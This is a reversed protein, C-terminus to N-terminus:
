DYDKEWKLIEGTEADVDYEFELRGQYFKIEYVKRGHEFDLEVKKLFSLQDKTLRAHKLAAELAEEQTLTGGAVAELEKDNLKNINTM